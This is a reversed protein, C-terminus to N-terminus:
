APTAHHRAHQCRARHRRPHARDEARRRLLRPQGELEVSDGRVWKVFRYPGTGVPQASFPDKELDASSALLHSPLIPYSSAVDSMFTSQPQKLHFVVSFPDPAAVSAINEFFVRNIVANKDDLIAHITFLVDAATFAAGDHWTVGHRLHFTITLGDPAIGGNALSPVVTALAPRPQNDGDFSVLPDFMLFDIYNEEGTTTLLPNLTHPDGIVYLRLTTPTGAARVTAGTSAALVLLAIAITAFRVLRKM